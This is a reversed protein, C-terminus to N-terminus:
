GNMCRLSRDRQVNSRLHDADIVFTPPDGLLPKTRMRGVLLRLGAKGRRNMPVFVDLRDALDAARRSPGIVDAPM